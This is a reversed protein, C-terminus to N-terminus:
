CLRYFGDMTRVQYLVHVHVLVLGIDCAWAYSLVMVVNILPATVSGFVVYMSSMGICTRLTLM